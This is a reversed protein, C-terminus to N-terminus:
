NDYMAVILFLREEVLRLHVGRQSRHKMLIRTLLNPKAVSHNVKLEVNSEIGFRKLQPLLVTRALDM